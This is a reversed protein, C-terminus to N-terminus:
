HPRSQLESTHEESRPTQGDMGIRVGKVGDSGVAVHNHSTAAVTNPLTVLVRAPSDLLSVKPTMQGQGTMEVSVGDQSRLVDVRQLTTHNPVNTDTSPTEAAAIVILLPLLVVLLQKRM